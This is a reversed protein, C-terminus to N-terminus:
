EHRLDSHRQQMFIPNRFYSHYIQFTGGQFKLGGFKIRIDRPSNDGVSVLM